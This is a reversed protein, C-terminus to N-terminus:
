NKTEHCSKWDFSLFTYVSSDTFYNIWTELKLVKGSKENSNYLLCQVIKAAPTEGLPHWCFFFNSLLLCQDMCPPHPTFFFGRKKTWWFPSMNKLLSPDFDKQWMDWTWKQTETEVCNPTNRSAKCCSFTM